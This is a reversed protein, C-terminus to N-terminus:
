FVKKVALPTALFKMQPLPPALRKEKEKEKGKRKRGEMGKEGRKARGEKKDGREGTEKEKGEKGKFTHGGLIWIPSRPSRQSSGWCPRPRLGLRFRIQHM